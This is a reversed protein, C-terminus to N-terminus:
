AGLEGEEEEHVVVGGVVTLVSRLRKLEEDPVAFYDDSLVVVDGWRGVELVGLRAEDPGGLFWANASTYLRLAEARGVTQGANIARGRADRGTTAYYVQVWPNLPAIQMGDGGMGARIGSRLVERYPPGAAPAGGSGALYQWGSLNVGAGLARLRALYAATIRPVHAVVWRLDRIGGADATAADVAEFAATQSRFDDDTLSHVELRWRARAARAAAAAFAPGGTYNAAVFEGLGGTRVAGDGFFPFTNRLRQAVSAAEPTTDMHLFNIRLRMRPPSSPSASAYVSLWPRHMAYLDEHAAGDSPTHTAPFAGQDLHTTVGMQAAYAMADRVGRQRDAPTLQQRLYLLAKGNDLGAAISGNAGIVPPDELSEFVAQGLSNTAAPGNFGVSVFVPHAPLAADLEARTPLRAERFQNPHFGGITTVFSGPPVGAGARQRYTRQVDALSYANELPTHYGPRNGLLVVHNHSDILGPVAVRGRLDVTRPAVGFMASAADESDGAYVIEGGRIALVSHTRNRADMAHIQGNSLILDGQLTSAPHASGAGSRSHPTPHSKGLVQLYVLPLFPLLALVWLRKWRLM